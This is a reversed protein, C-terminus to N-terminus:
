FWSNIMFGSPEIIVKLRTSYSVYFCVPYSLYILPRTTKV